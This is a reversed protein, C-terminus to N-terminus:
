SSGERKRGSEDPGILGPQRGPPAASLASPGTDPGTAPLPRRRLRPPRSCLDRLLGAPRERTLIPIETEQDNGARKDVERQRARGVPM